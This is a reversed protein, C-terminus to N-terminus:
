CRRSIYDKVIDDILYKYRSHMYQHHTPCLPVLNNPENNSHNEDYHHISIIKDESCVVCRFDHNLEAIKRYNFGKWNGNNEGTRFYKNSCSYSCTVNNGYFMKDCVPCPKQNAINKSCADQHKSINSKSYQEGCHICSFKKRLSQRAADMNSIQRNPNSKCLREHNRLSNDNKCEKGCYTCYKM